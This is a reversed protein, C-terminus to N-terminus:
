ARRRLMAFGGMALLSLTAPEPVAIALSTNGGAAIEVYNNGAPVDCQGYTNDGWAVISGDRRLALDHFAGAAVAVFDNGAPVDWHGYESGSIVSFAALSGDTKLLLGHFNGASIAAYDNGGPVAVDCNGNWASISGDERLAMAFTYGCAMAVCRGHNISNGFSVNVGSYCAGWGSVFGTDTLVGTLISNAAVAEYTQPPTVQPVTSQGYANNGWAALTGDTKVAVTYAGGAAAAKCRLGESVNCQGWSNDGWALLTGDAKIALSHTSSTSIAMYDNGAPAVSQGYRNDGWGVLYGAQAQQLACGAVLCVSIFSGVLGDLRKMAAERRGLISLRCDGM